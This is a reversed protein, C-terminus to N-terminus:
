YMQDNARSSTRELVRQVRSIEAQVGQVEGVKRAIDKEQQQIRQMIDILQETYGSRTHDAKPMSQYEDRLRDRESQQERVQRAMNLMEESLGSAREELEAARKRRAARAAKLERIAEVLPRRHLEWQGALQLIRGEDADGAAQLEALHKESEPLM